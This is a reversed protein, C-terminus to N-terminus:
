QVVYGVVNSPAMKGSTVEKNGIRMNTTINNFGIRALFDGVFGGVFKGLWIGVLIIATVVIINPIFDIVKYLMSIAPDTIGKLKLQELSTITIPIMIVIFVLNGVFAALSTGEFTKDLNLKSVLKESGVAQLLNVIIKKVISAVLWGIAFIIA